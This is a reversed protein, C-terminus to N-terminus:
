QKGWGSWREPEPPAGHALVFLGGAVLAPALTVMAQYVEDSIGLEAKLTERPATLVLRRFAEDSRLRQIVQALKQKEEM